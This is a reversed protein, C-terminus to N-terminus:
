LKHMFRYNARTASTVDVCEIEHSLSPIIDIGIDFQWTIQLAKEVREM